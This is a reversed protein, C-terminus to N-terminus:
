PTPPHPPLPLIFPVTSIFQRIFNVEPFSIWWPILHVMSQLEAHTIYLATPSWGDSVPNFSYVFWSLRSQGFFHVRLVGIKDTATRKLVLTQTLNSLWVAPPFHETTCFLNNTGAGPHEMSFSPNVAGPSPLIVGGTHQSWEQACLQVSHATGWGLRWFSAGSGSSLTCLEKSPPFPVHMLLWPGAVWRPFWTLVFTYITFKFQITKKAIKAMMNQEFVPIHIRKGLLFLSM